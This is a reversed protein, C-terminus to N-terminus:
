CHLRATADLRRQQRRPTQRGGRLRQHDDVGSIRQHHLVPRAMEISGSALVFQATITLIVHPSVILAQRPWVVVASKTAGHDVKGEGGGGYHSPMPQSRLEAKHSAESNSSQM